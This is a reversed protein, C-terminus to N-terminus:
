CFIFNGWTPISRVISVELPKSTHHQFLQALWVHASYSIRLNFMTVHVVESKVSKPYKRSEAYCSKIVM